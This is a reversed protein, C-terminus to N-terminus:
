KKCQKELEEATKEIDDLMPALRELVDEQDRVNFFNLNTSIMPQESCPSATVTVYGNWKKDGNLITFMPQGIHILRRSQDEAASASLPWLLFPLILIRNM